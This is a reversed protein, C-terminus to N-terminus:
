IAPEGAVLFKQVQDNIFEFQANRDPHDTGELVKRNAQLIAWRMYYSAWWEIVLKIGWLKFNILLNEFVKVLGVCHHNRIVM